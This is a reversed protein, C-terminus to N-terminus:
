FMDAKPWCYFQDVQINTTRAVKPSVQPQKQSRIEIHAKRNKIFYYMSIKLNHGISCYLRAEQTMDWPILKPLALISHHERSHLRELFLCVWGTALPSALSRWRGRHDTLFIVKHPECIWPSATRSFASFLRQSKAFISGKVPFGYSHFKGGIPSPKLQVGHSLIM